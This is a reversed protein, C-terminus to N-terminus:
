LNVRSYRNIRTKPFYRTSVIVAITSLILMVYITLGEPIVGAEDVKVLWFDYGGAGFSNTNGVIAYGGDNTQIVFSGEDNGTGGYTKNWRM